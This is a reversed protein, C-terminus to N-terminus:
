VGVVSPRGEGLRIGTIEVNGDVYCENEETEKQEVEHRAAEVTQLIEKKGTKRAPFSNECRERAKREERRSKELKSARRIRIFPGGM